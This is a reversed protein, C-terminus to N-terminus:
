LVVDPVGSSQSLPAYVAVRFPEERRPIAPVEENRLYGLDVMTSVVGQLEKMVEAPIEVGHTYAGIPCNYHDTADTCFTRGEAALKWYTCSSPGASDIRPVGDPAADVFSVAVPPRRLGLLEELQQAANM